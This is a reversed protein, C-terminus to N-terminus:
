QKKDAKIKDGSCLTQRDLGRSRFTLPREAFSAPLIGVLWQSAAGSDALRPREATRHVTYGEAVSANWATRECKWSVFQETIDRGGDETQETGEKVEEAWVELDVRDELHVPYRVADFAEVSDVVNSTETVVPGEVFAGFVSVILELHALHKRM